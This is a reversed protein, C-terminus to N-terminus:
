LTLVRMASLTSGTSRNDPDPASRGLTVDEDVVVRVELSFRTEGTTNPQTGHLHAASFAMAEGARLPRGISEVGNLSRPRPHHQPLGRGAQFGGVQDFSGRDFGASDNDVVRGFADPWFVMAQAPAVDHLALWLNVQAAPNAFWTDRHPFYAPAAEAITHGWPTVARLRPGDWRTKEPELGLALLWRGVQHQAVSDGLLERRVRQFADFFADNTARSGFRAPHRSGLADGIADWAYSRLAATEAAVDGVLVRGAFVAERGARDLRLGDLYLRDRLFLKEM